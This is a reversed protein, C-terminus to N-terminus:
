APGALQAAFPPTYSMMDESVRRIMDVGGVESSYLPIYSRVLPGLDRYLVKMYGTQEHYKNALYEGAGEQLAVEPRLVENVIVGGIPINFKQVMGIFRRVVAIPLALPLTVFFFATSEPDVLVGKAKDFRENMSMLDAMLPDKKVEEMVREKRFSLQVRMSLAEKRSDIMRTLWLGYIKSLGILRVANAVAATDFIVRDFSEGEKLIYDVMRDFMASEEFAPNTTAIEIFPKADLPIDAWKLFEKVRGRISNRYREVVESTEVEVAHVGKAGKVEIVKGGSLSQGFLSSLSHVPNLSALLVREGQSAYHHALGAAAVTKGVGGKGGTFIYRMKPRQALLEPMTTM